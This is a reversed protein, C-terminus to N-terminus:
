WPLREGTYSFFGGTEGGDLSEIVSLMHETAEEPTRVTLGAKAFPKSLPTDVTGPHLAVVALEPTRRALEISATKVIQNLGSKAARYSIWGGLGNDGISGVKASLTAFVSKGNRPFLRGFHKLLLAPGIANIAYARAMQRPDIQRLTKEPQMEADSLIGTADIVLRLDGLDRVHAAAREISAEELLDLPPDSARSLGVLRAFRGSAELHSFFAAGIGGSAGIVVATGGQPFSDLSLTM